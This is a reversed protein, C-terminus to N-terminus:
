PLIDGYGVTIITVSAWYLSTIYKYFVDEDQMNISYIWNSNTSLNFSGAVGWFCAIMHLILILSWITLTLNIADVATGRRKLFSVLYKETTRIRFLKLALCIIYFRPIYAFNFSVFNKFDDLSPEGPFAKFM